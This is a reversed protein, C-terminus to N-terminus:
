FKLRETLDVVRKEAASQDAAFAIESARLGCLLDTSPAVGHDIADFFEKLIISDGGGHGDSKPLSIDKLEGGEGYLALKLEGTSVTGRLYGESGHICITRGPEGSTAMLTLIGQTGDDYALTVSQNNNVDADTRYVCKKFNSIFQLQYRTNNLNFNKYHFMCTKPTKECDDCFEPKTPDRPVLQDGAHSFVRAPSGQSEKLWCLLDLDHSSKENLMGGTIEKKRRWSRHYATGGHNHDLWENIQLMVVRGIKGSDIISKVHRLYPSYRLIFGLLIVKDTQKAIAAVKRLDEENATVPKELLCHRGHAIARELLEAHTFQPTVIFVSDAVEVPFKELAEDLSSLIKTEPSGYENAFRDRLGDHISTNKDVMAVLKRFKRKIIEKAFYSGRGSGVIITGKEERSM